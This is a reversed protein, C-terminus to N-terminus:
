QATWGGDVSLEAGTIQEAAPTCLFVVLQAADLQAEPGAVVQVQRQVM